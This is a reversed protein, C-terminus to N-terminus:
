FPVHGVVIAAMSLLKDHGGILLANWGAHLIAAGLVWIFVNFTM